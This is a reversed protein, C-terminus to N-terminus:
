VYFRSKYLYDVIKDIDQNINTNPNNTRLALIYRRNVSIKFTSSVKTIAIQTGQTEHTTYFDNSSYILIIEQKNTENARKIVRADNVKNTSFLVLLVSIFLYFAKKM